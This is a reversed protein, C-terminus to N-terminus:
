HEGALLKRLAPGDVRTFTRNRRRRDLLAVEVGTPGGTGGAPEGLAELAQRLVVPLPAMPDHRATLTASLADADGGIVVCDAREVVTGDFSIKFITDRVPEEGVEAVVLDVEYPKEAASSFTAGLLQAYSNALGRANVDARDYSYGRLDAYRIGTVRLSEFEHYRGVAAFGIRDYIESVKHLSRSPNAAVFAIGQACRVTIVSRGRAIGTRAFEARDKMLQDPSVYYPASM